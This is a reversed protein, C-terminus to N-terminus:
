LFDFNFSEIKILYFLVLSQAKTWVVTKDISIFININPKTLTGLPDLRSLSSAM